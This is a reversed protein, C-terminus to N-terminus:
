RSTATTSPSARSMSSAPSASRPPTLPPTLLPLLPAPIPPPPHLRTSHQAPSPRMVHRPSKPCSCCPPPPRPPSEAPRRTCATCVTSLPQLSLRTTSPHVPVRPSPRDVSPLQHLSRLGFDQLRPCSALSPLRPADFNQRAACPLKLNLGSVAAADVVVVVVAAVAAVM